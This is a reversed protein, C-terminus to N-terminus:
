ADRAKRYYDREVGWFQMRCQLRRSLAEVVNYNNEMMGSGDLKMDAMLAIVIVQGTKAKRQRMVKRLSEEIGVADYAVDVGRQAPALARVKAVLDPDDRDIPIVRSSECVCLLLVESGNL